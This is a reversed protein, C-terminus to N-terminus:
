ARNRSEAAGAERFLVLMPYFPLLLRLEVLLSFVSIYVGVPIATALFRTQYRRGDRRARMLSDHDMFAYFVGFHFALAVWAYWNALQMIHLRPFLLHTTNDGAGVVLRIAAYTGLGAAVIAVSAWPVSRLKDRDIWSKESGLHQLLWYFVAIFAMEHSLMGVVLLGAFRWPAGIESLYICGYLIAVVPITYPNSNVYLCLLAFLDAILVVRYPSACRMKNALALLMCNLAFLSVGNLLARSGYLDKGDFLADNIGLLVERMLPRNVYLWSYYQKKFGEVTYHAYRSSYRSEYGYHAITTVTLACVAALFVAVVVGRRSSSRQFAGLCRM